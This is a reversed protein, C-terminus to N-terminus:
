VEHIVIRGVTSKHYYTNDFVWGVLGYQDHIMFHTIEPKIQSDLGYVNFNGDVQWVKIKYKKM